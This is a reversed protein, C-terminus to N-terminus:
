SFKYRGGQAQSNAFTLLSKIKVSNTINIIHSKPIKFHFSDDNQIDIYNLLIINELHSFILIVVDHM